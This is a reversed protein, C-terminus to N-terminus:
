NGSFSLTLVDNLLWQVLYGKPNKEYKQFFNGNSFTKLSM